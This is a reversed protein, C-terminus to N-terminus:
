VRQELYDALAREDDANATPGGAVRAFRPHASLDIRAIRVSVQIGEGRMTWTSWSASRVHARASRPLALTALVAAIVIAARVFWAREERTRMM